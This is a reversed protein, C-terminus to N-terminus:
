TTFGPQYNELHITEEFARLFKVYFISYDEQAFYNHTEDPTSPLDEFSKDETFKGMESRTFDICTGGIRNYFHWSKNMHTKLIEGGFIDYILHSILSSLGKSHNNPSYGPNEESLWTRKLAKQIVKTYFM